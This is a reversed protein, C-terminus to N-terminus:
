PLLYILTVIGIVPWWKRVIKETETKQRIVEAPIEQATNVKFSGVNNLNYTVNISQTEGVNLYKIEEYKSTLYNENKNYFDIKVYIKNIIESTNNTINGEIIINSYGAKSKIIEIKPSTTEVTYNTIDKLMNKMSSFALFDLILYIAIFIILYTFFKKMTKM